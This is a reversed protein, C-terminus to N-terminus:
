VSSQRLSVRAAMAADREDAHLSSVLSDSKPYEKFEGAKAADLASAMNARFFRGAPKGEQRAALQAVGDAEARLPDFRRASPEAVRVAVADAKTRHIAQSVERRVWELRDPGDIDKPTPGHWSEIVTPPESSDDLAVIALKKSWCRVGLARM